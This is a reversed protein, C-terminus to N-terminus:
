SLLANYKIPKIPCWYLIKEGFEYNRWKRREWRLFTEEQLKQKKSHLTKSNSSVSATETEM